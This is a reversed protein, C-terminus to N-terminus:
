RALAQRRINWDLLAVYAREEALLRELPARCPGAECPSLSGDAARGLFVPHELGLVAGQASLVQEFEALARPRDAPSLLDQGSAFLHQGPIAFPALTPFLDRPSAYRGTDVTRGALLAPPLHLLLPIGYRRDADRGEPYEYLRRINHDGFAALLTRGALGDAELRDLFGGLADCAYQTTRLMATALPPDVAVPGSAALDLPRPTYSAPVQHPPHNSTTLIVMFVPQGRRDAERLLREAYEFMPGDHVGWTHRPSGPFAAEVDHEDHFEEFGQRPLVRDFHRWGGTGSTVFITRYGAKAFPLAVSTDYTRYGYQGYTLPRIPTSLLLAELTGDTGGDAQMFHRFLLGHALHPALRGLLDNGPAQRSLLDASWSEMVAVVVHPPRAPRVPAPPVEPYLARLLEAESSARIGLVAAAELPSAFGLRRLGAGVDGSIAGEDSQQWAVFLAEPGSPVLDNVYRHSSVVLDFDRLPFTGTRGRALFPVAALTALGAATRLARGLPRRSLGGALLWGQAWLLGAMGAAVRLVPYDRWVTAIVTGAGDETFGFILPNIPSRFFGYYFHNVFALADCVALGALAAAVPAAAVWAPARPGAAVRAMGLLFLLPGFLIAAVKLDFRSGMVFARWLDVRPAGGIVKGLHVLLALRFGLLTLAALGIARWLLRLQGDLLAWRDAPRDGGARIM